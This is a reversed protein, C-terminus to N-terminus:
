IPHQTFVLTPRSATSFLFIGLGQGSEFGQYDLGYDTRYWQATGPGRRKIAIKLIKTLTHTGLLTRSVKGQRM